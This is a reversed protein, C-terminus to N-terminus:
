DFADTLGNAAVNIQVVQKPKGFDVWCKRRNLRHVFLIPLKASFRFYFSYIHEMTISEEMDVKGNATTHRCQSM